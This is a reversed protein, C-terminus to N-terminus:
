MDSIPICESEFVSKSTRQGVFMEKMKFFDKWKPGRGMNKNLAERRAWLSKNRSEQIVVFGMALRSAFGGSSIVIKGWKLPTPRPEPIKQPALICEFYVTSFAPKGITERWLFSNLNHIGVLIWGPSKPCKKWHFDQCIRLHNAWPNKERFVDVFDPPDMSMEVWDYRRLNPTKSMNKPTWDYRIEVLHSQIDLALMHSCDSEDHKGM